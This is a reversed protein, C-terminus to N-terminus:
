SPPQARCTISAQGQEMRLAREAAGASQYFLRKEARVAMGQVDMRTFTLHDAMARVMQLGFGGIRTEGRKDARETGPPPVEAFSFGKGCDTVVLVIHDAYYEMEVQFRGAGAHRVVNAALEGVIFEIDYLTTQTVQLSELVSRSVRRTMALYTEDEPLDLSLKFIM